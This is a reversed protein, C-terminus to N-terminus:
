DAAIEFPNQKASQRRTRPNIVKWKELAQATASPNIFFEIAQALDSGKYTAVDGGNEEAVLCLIANLADRGVWGHDKNGAIVANTAKVLMKMAVPSVTKPEVNM